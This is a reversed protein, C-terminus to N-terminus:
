KKIIEALSDLINTWGGFHDDRTEEDIFKVHDLNVHTEQASTAKFTLTVTSDDVSCPSEWTFVLRDPRTIELYRGTHPVKDDGVQMIIEFSGGERPDTTTTPQPMGPMPLIFQTLMAPDLWADFVREIPAQITKSVHTTLETM